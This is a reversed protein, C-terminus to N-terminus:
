DRQRTPRITLNSLNVRQPQMIVFSVLRAIDEPLLFPGFKDELTSFEELNYGANAQFNSKVFGPELVTVRILKNCIEKRLSEALSSLAFKTSGYVPNNISVVRGAVSSIIVIDMKKSKNKENKLNELMLNVAERMQHLASICNIDFLGEWKSSDSTLATGALGVGANIVVIDPIRLLSNLSFNFLEKVRSADTLNASYQFLKGSYNKNNQLRSPVDKSRGSIVVDIGDSLFKESIALGIGSTGGTVVAKRIEMILEEQM